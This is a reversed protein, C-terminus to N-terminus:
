LGLSELAVRAADNVRGNSPDARRIVRMGQIVVLLFRALARADTGIPLEGQGLARLLASTLAVELTDWSSRVRRAVEDDSPAREVAANVVFCGLAYEDYRSETVYLEV